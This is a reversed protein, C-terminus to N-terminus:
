FSTYINFTFSDPQCTNKYPYLTVFNYMFLLSSSSLGKWIEFYNESRRKQMKLFVYM